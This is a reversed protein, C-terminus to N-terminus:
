RHIYLGFCRASGNRRRLHRQRGIRAGHPACRAWLCRSDDPWLRGVHSADCQAAVEMVATDGGVIAYRAVVPPLSAVPASVATEVIEAGPLASLMADVTGDGGDAVPIGETEISNDFEKIAQKAANAIQASTASGKFKDIALVIKM